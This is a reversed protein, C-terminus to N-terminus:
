YDPMAGGTNVQQRKHRNLYWCPPAGFHPFLSNVCTQPAPPDFTYETKRDKQPIVWERVVMVTSFQPRSPVRFRLSLYDGTWVLVAFLAVRLATILLLRKM